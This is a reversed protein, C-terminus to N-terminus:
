QQMEKYKEDIISKYQKLKENNECMDIAADYTYDEISCKCEICLNLFSILGDKTLKNSKLLLLFPVTSLKADYRNIGNKIINKDYYKLLLQLYEM